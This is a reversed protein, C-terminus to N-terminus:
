KGQLTHLLVAVVLFLVFVVLKLFVSLSESVAKEEERELM